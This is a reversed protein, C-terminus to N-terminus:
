QSKERSEPALDEMESASSRSPSRSSSGAVGFRRKNVSGLDRFLTLSTFQLGYPEQVQLESDQLADYPSGSSLAQASTDARQTKMGEAARVAAHAPLKGM